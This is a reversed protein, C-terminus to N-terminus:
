EEQVCCWNIVIIHRKRLNDMTLIKGLAASWVFFGARSPAQTRWVSKWPFRRCENCTLSLFFAKIKFLGRKSSIWWLRDEIGQRMTASHLVQLFSAFVELEWDHAERTFSV